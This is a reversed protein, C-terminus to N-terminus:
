SFHTKIAALFSVSEAIAILARKMNRWLEELKVRREEADREGSQNAMKMVCRRQSNGGQHPAAPQHNRMCGM